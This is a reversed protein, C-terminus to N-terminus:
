APSEREPPQSDQLEHDPIKITLIYVSLIAFLTAGFLMPANPAVEYMLPGLAPGLIPGTTNAAALIGAAAGQEHPEVSLSAGGNIGPTAFSFAFGILAYGFIMIWISPAFAIILLAIAFSPGCLRLLTRPHPRFIQFIIGQTVTIIIAMSALAISAMQSM